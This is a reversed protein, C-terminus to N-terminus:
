SIVSTVGQKKLRSRSTRPVPVKTLPIKRANQERRRMTRYSNAVRLFVAEGWDLIMINVALIVLRVNGKTYGGGPIIRDVSVGYPNMASEGTHEYFFEIGTLACRHGQADAMQLLWDITLDFEIDKHPCEAKARKLFRRLAKEVKQKRMYIPTIKYVPAVVHQESDVLKAALYADDFEPSDINPLRVRVRNFGRFYFVKKGHRTKEQQLFPLSTKM